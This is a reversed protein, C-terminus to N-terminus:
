RSYDPRRTARFDYYHIISVVPVSISKVHRVRARARLFFLCARVNIGGFREGAPYKAGRRRRFPVSRALARARRLVFSKILSPGFLLRRHLLRGAFSFPSFPCRSHLVRPHPFYPFGQPFRVSYSRPNAAFHRHFECALVTWADFSRSAIMARARANRRGEDRANGESRSRTLNM